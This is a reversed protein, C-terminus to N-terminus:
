IKSTMSLKNQGKEYCYFCNANCHTTTLIEYTSFGKKEERAKLTRLLKPLAKYESKENFDSEIFFRQEVLYPMALNLNYVAVIEGTLFSFYLTTDSYNVTYVSESQRYAKDPYYVPKGCVSFILESAERIITYGSM